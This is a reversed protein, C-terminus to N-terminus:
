DDMPQRVGQGEISFMRYRGKKIGDWAADDDIKFGVWWGEPVIGEPIGMAAQKEKTLVVSEILRGKKRLDANHLEGTDRFNLVYEYAAHELEDPDVVDRQHDVIQEGNKRIAVLAWGFVERKDDDAKMIQFPEADNRNDRVEAFSKSVGDVPFYGFENIDDGAFQIDKAKVKKSYVQLQNNERSNSEAHTQAYTRSLTIWDGDNFENKPAARYITVEADPKNRIASLVRMSEKYSQERMNAYWEPHDYFDKPMMGADTIDHGSGMKDPRHRMRYDDEAQQKEEKKPRNALGEPREKKPKQEVQKPPHIENWLANFEEESMGMAKRQSIAGFRAKGEIKSRLVAMDSDSYKSASGGPAPAFRGTKPDHYINIKEIRETRIDLFTKAM